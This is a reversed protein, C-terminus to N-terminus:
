RCRPDDPTDCTECIVRLRTGPEPAVGGRDVLMQVGSQVCKGSPEVRWCPPADTTCGPISQRLTAGGSTTEDYVECHAQIGATDPDGDALRTSLCELSARRAVEQGIRAMVPTFDDACVSLFTGNDQFADVFEHIRVAPDASGNASTCSPVIQPENQGRRGGRNVLKVSYPTAPGTVAAVMVDDPNAKLTKFFEVLESIKILRGDEASQCNQLNSAMTRPPRQGNCLHGFENCRYSNIPGLPDSLQTQSPDFLTTDAPASCDDEDTLLIIALVAEDRLFGRNAAPMLGPDLATRVSQLQHEFGCGSTGLQAICSFVQDIDGDFNRDPGIASIYADRPGTCNGTRPINQFRGQDGPGTCGPVGTFRGTGLDSSVVGIHVNPLGQPLDKLIGTFVPFNRRLNDQEEKMSASNDIMFVIDIDNNVSQTFVPLLNM